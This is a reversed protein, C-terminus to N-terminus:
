KRLYNSQEVVKMGLFHYRHHDHDHNHDHHNIITCKTNENIVSM